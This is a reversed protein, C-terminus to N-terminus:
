FLNRLCKSFYHLINFNKQCILSNDIKAKKTLFIIYKAGSDKVMSAVAEVFAPHTVVAKSPEASSLLNPKLLVRDGRSVFSGVGGLDAFTQELVRVLRAPDYDDARRISVTSQM